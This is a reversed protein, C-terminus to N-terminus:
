TNLPFILHHNLSYLADNKAEGGWPMVVISLSTSLTYVNVKTSSPIDNVFIAWQLSYVLSNIKFLKIKRVLNYIAISPNWRIQGFSFFVLWCKDESRKLDNATCKYRPRSRSFAADSRKCLCEVFLNDPLFKLHVHFGVIELPQYLCTREKFQKCLLTMHSTMKQLFCRFGWVNRDRRM